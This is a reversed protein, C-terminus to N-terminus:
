NNNVLGLNYGLHWILIQTYISSKVPRRLCPHRLSAWMSTNIADQLILYIYVPVNELDGLLGDLFYFLTAFVRGGDGINGRGSHTEM